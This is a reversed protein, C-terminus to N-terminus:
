RKSIADEYLTFAFFSSTVMVTLAISKVPNPAFFPLTVSLKFGSACDFPTVKSPALVLSTPVLPITVKLNFVLAVVTFATSANTFAPIVAVKVVSLLTVLLISIATSSSATESSFTRYKAKSGM